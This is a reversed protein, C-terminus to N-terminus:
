LTRNVGLYFLVIAPDVFVRRYAIHIQLDIRIVGQAPCTPMKMKHESAM